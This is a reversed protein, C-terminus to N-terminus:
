PNLMQVSFLTWKNSLSDYKQILERLAEDDSSSSDIQGQLGFVYIFRDEIAVATTSYCPRLMRAVIHSWKGTSIQYREVSDLAEQELSNFGGLAYM